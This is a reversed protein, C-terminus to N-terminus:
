SRFYDYIEKATKLSIGEVKALQEIDANKIEEISTFHNILMKRRAAGVGPIQNLVSFNMAIKRKQRHSTIAFRHAEDRLIQLYKMVPDLRDLTFPAKGFQHFVERGANRDVGKSICVLPIDLELEDLVAKATSLHGEGGDILLLDPREELKNLRRNLVEKMMMYDDGIETTKINYKRYHKKSFGDETAVIMAGMAHAGMIHSNDYVEIRKVPQDIEFLKRVMELRTQKQQKEENKRSIAVKANEMAFQSAKLRDGSKPIIVKISFAEILNDLGEPNVSLIVEKPASNTQYFQALFLALIQEVEDGEVRDFFFSRNGYNQGNRFLFVQVCAIDGDKEIGIVDADELNFLNANKNQIYNLARLQDRLKAAKEYEMDDSAKQMSLSLEQQLNASKGKLFLLAQKVNYQYDNLSIKNVCPASCRKIQYQMCATKRSDFFYDTCNRLLFTKELFEITEDVIKPSAFPGFYQGKINKEGRFKLIQGFDHDQRLLIYPMSKDDKLLINYKPRLSKILNAELILAQAESSVTIIELKATQSIAIRMRECLRKIQTYNIIRKALDKAKGVYLVKDNKDLMRYVGPLNPMNELEKKIIEIPQKILM